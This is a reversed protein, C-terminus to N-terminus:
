GPYKKLVLTLINAGKNPEPGTELLSSSSENSILGSVSASLKM